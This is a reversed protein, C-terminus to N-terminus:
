AFPSCATPCPTSDVAGTVSRTVHAALMGQGGGALACGPMNTQCTFSSQTADDVHITNSCTQPQVDLQPCAGTVLHGSADIGWLCDNTTACSVTQVPAGPQANVGGVYEVQCGANTTCFWDMGTLTMPCPTIDVQPHVNATPASAGPPVVWNTVCSGPMTPPPPCGAVAVISMSLAAPVTLRRM